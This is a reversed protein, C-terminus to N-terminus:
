YKFQFTKIIENAADIHADFLGAKATYTITYIYGNDLIIASHFKYQESAFTASYDFTLGEVGDLTIKSRMPTGDENKAYDLNNFNDSFQKYFYNEFYDLLSVYEDSWTFATVSVSSFDGESVYVSTMGPDCRELIWEAPYCIRYESGECEALLFGDPISPDREACSSLVFLLSTLVLLSAIIKKM